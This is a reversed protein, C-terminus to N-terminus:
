ITDLLGALVASQHRRSYQQIKEPSFNVQIDGYKIIDLVMRELQTAVQAATDALIGLGTDTLTDHIIDHNDPCLIVPKSFLLYEYLKSSPVGKIGDHAVMLFAHSGNQIDFVQQRPVRDTIALIQEYGVMCALVRASQSKDYALGPFHLKFKIQDKYQDFVKKYGELFVEIRQTPYLTGNYTITFTDRQHSPKVVQSESESFGNLLTAGKVGTYKSIKDVYYPSVSTILSATGVWKRESACELRHVISAATGRTKVLETTTWDDRYDAIWRLHPFRQKLKYGIFFAVFPNATIVLKTMDPERALLECAQQYIPYLPVARIFFNQTILEIMTLLRRVVGLRQEGYRVYFRDRVSGSFPVSVIRATATQEVRVATGSPRSM